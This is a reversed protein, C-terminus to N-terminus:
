KKKRGIVKYPKTDNIDPSIAQLKKNIVATKDTTELQEQLKTLEGAVAQLKKINGKDVCKYAREITATCEAETETDPKKRKILQEINYVINLTQNKIEIIEKKQLATERYEDFEEKFQKIQEPKLLSTQSVEIENKSKTSLDIASVKLIGNINISFTVEIRPIGKTAPKIDTLTFNGLLKNEEAIRSEGQYVKIEVEEQNDEVTSFVMSRNIPIPTNAEIIRTFTGGFTKVGLSLPTVDLLLIDKGEGIVISGQIAAGMAVIEDPNVKKNPEKKFYEKIKNQIYPIRTSGGVLLIEDIDYISLDANKLANSCINLTHEVREKIANEFEKRQLNRLYHVPGRKTDTIFPLNIECRQVSSLEKKAFEAAERIRQMALKNESLNVQFQNNIEQIVINSIIVDFNDGGLHIDGATALVRIINDSIELVSIDITGGGFDYVVVNFTKKIDFAFALSAATPENIIRLVKLGAIEAADKTAQRQSDNFYAPVTIIAGEIEENLYFKASEKLKEIVMASIQEPSFLRKNIMVKVTNDEGEVIPYNFEHLYPQVETFSKGMLKKVSYITNINSTLQSKAPNGILRDGDKTFAVVSPLLRNGEPSLIIVPKNNKLYAVVSNTTGIDIGIVKGM